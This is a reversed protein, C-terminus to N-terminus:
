LTPQPEPLVPPTSDMYTLWNRWISHTRQDSLAIHCTLAMSTRITGEIWDDYVASCEAKAYATFGADSARIQEAVAPKDAVRAIAAALYAARRDEAQQAIASLCENVELTTLADPCLPPEGDRAAAPGHWAALIAGGIAWIARMESEKERLLTAGPM